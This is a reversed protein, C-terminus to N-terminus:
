GAWFEYWYTGDSIFIMSLRNRSIAERTISADNALMIGSNSQVTGNCKVFLIKGSCLSANPLTVDGDAVLFDVWASAYPEGINSSNDFSVGTGTSLSLGAITVQEM